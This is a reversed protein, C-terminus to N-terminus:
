PARRWLIAALPNLSASAYGLGAIARNDAPVDRQTADTVTAAPEPREPAECFTVHGRAGNRSGASIMRMRGDRVLRHFGLSVGAVERLVTGLLSATERGLAGGAPVPEAWGEAASARVLEAVLPAFHDLDTWALLYNGDGGPDAVNVARGPM